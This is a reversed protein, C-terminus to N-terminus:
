NLNKPLLSGEKINKLYDPFLDNEPLLLLHCKGRHAIIEPSEIQKSDCLYFAKYKNETCWNLVKKVNEIMPLEPPSHMEVMFKTKKNSATKIAGQLALSEAGEVDIKILDPIINVKEVISDITMQNVYYFSNVASATEAHGSFMSGAEGTGVTFFKIKDGEKDSIFANVFKTKLGFGNIIMNQAANALAEPNPDALLISKNKMQIAALLSMYGINSGIDFVHESNKVLEFFWADDKDVKARYTGKLGKLKVGAIEFSQYKSEIIFLYYSLIKKIKKLM